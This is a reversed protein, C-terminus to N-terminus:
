RAAAHAEEPTERVRETESPTVHTANGTLIGTMGRFAKGIHMGTDDITFERIEKEHDSGRMELVSLGRRMEGSVEVYRLLIISDAMSFVHTDATAPGGFLDGTATTFLGAIEQEKICSTLAVVFERFSKPTSIRELASLSDVAVRNPKFEGIKRKMEIFHDELCASEPYACVIVLNGDKEMRAFDIGWGTANHLLQERSEEFGFLICREGHAAGGATFKNALLTKGIGPPGSVLVVSGRFMGGGCMADLQEDGSTVRVYSSGQGLGMASLPIVVIGERPVVTFPHEGKHHPAGRFKLIEVTRRRERDELVNRLIMVNDAVFEEVGYRAIDGYEQTREATMVATIGIDRLVSAVRLLEARVMTADTFESFFAGLADLAVRSAGVKKVAHEVRVLLAGLDYEGALTEEQRLERTGDVFAWKGELEWEHINWGFGLMNRRIDHPTEEFTVMVGTQGTKIGAALFQCAFVTKASGATGAVLTTRGKPLGGLAVEDFGPIGTPLKEIAGENREVNM